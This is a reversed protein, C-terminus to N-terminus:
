DEIPSRDEVIWHPLDRMAQRLVSYDDEEIVFKAGRVVERLAEITEIIPVGAGEIAIYGLQQVEFVIKDYQEKTEIM